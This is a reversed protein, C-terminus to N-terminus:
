KKTRKKNAAKNRTGKARQLQLGLSVASSVQIMRIHLRLLHILPDDFRSFM